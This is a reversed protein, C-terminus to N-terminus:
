WWAGDDGLERKVPEYILGESKKRRVPPEGRERQAARKAVWEEMLKTKRTQEEYEEQSVGPRHGYCYWHKGSDPSYVPSVTSSCATCIKAVLPNAHIERRGEEKAEEKQVTPKLSDLYQQELLKRRRSM